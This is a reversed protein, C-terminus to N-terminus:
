PLTAFADPWEVLQGIARDWSHHDRVHQAQERGISMARDPDALLEQVIDAMEEPTRAIVARPHETDIGPFPFTVTCCGCAMSRLIRDSAYRTRTFHDINLAVLKRRCVEAVHDPGQRQTGVWGSGFLTFDKGFRERMIRVAQERLDSNPFRGMYNNGAFVVGSRPAGEDPEYHVAEDYGIRLLASPFQKDRLAFVDEQNSFSMIDAVCAIEHYVSPLPDRVDGCWDVCFWGARRMAAIVSLPTTGIDGHTQTLFIGPEKDYLAGACDDLSAPRPLRISTHGCRDIARDIENGVMMCLAINM